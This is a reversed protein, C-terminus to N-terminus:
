KVVLRPDGNKNNQVNLSLFIKVNIWKHKIFYTDDKNKTSMQGRRLVYYSVLIDYIELVLRFLSLSLILQIVFM